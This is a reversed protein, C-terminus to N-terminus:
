AKRDIAVGLLKRMEPLDRRPLKHRRVHPGKAVLRELRYRSHRDIRKRESMVGLARVAKDEARAFMPDRERRIEATNRDSKDIAEAAVAPEIHQCDLAVIARLHLHGAAPRRKEFMADHAPVSM